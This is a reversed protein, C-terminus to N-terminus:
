QTLLNNKQRELKITQIQGLSNALQYRFDDVFELIWNNQTELLLPLQRLAIAQSVKLSITIFGEGNPQPPYETDFRKEKYFESLVSYQVAQQSDIEVNQFCVAKLQFKLVKYEDPTLKIQVQNSNTVKIKM